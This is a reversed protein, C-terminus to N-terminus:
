RLSSAAKDPSRVVNGARANALWFASLALIAMIMPTRAPYDPISAIMVLVILASGVRALRAAGAQGSADARFAAFSRIAFWALCAFLLFAGPLGGELVVQLWDNHAQNVYRTGLIADPESIRYVPDFTGYGSGVPFYRAVMDITVNWIESRFDAEGISRTTREVVIARDLAISLWICGFCIAAGLGVLPIRFRRPIAKFESRVRDFSVVAGLPIAVLTLLAGTRSGTALSTLLFLLMVGVAGIIAWRPTSRRLSWVLALVCALALFLAFHNRNAFNGSVANPLSNIFPNDFSNGSFQILGILTGGLALAVLLLVIRWHQDNTLNSALLLVVAPVILSSLANFTWSPSISIPRWPQEVGIITALDVFIDRGPLATWISPPLPILQLLVLLASAGLIIAPERLGRGTPRPMLVVQLVLIMWAVARVLPQGLVDM